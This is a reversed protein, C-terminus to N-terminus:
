EDKEHEPVQLSEKRGVADFIFKVYSIDFGLLTIMKNRTAGIRGKSSSGDWSSEAIM